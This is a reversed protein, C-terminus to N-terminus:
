NVMESIIKILEENEIPKQIIENEDLGNIDSLVDMFEQYNFKSATLFSIKVKKDIKKVEKYLELGNMKEMKIDFILLDYFDKRFSGLAALPDDFTDVAFGNDELISALTICIDSEDDVLLIKKV